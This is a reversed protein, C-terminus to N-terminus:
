THCPADQSHVIDDLHDVLSAKLAAVGRARLFAESRMGSTVGVFRVGARRAAEHDSETDGIYVTCRSSALASAKREAVDGQAVVTVSAMFRGLGLRELQLFVQAASSRATLLHLRHGNGVLTHLAQEVGEIPRDFWLWPPREIERAWLACLTQSLEQDIGAAALALPNSHGLRKASWYAEGDFPAGLRRAAARMLAVHRDKCTVLTGDFDLGLEMM